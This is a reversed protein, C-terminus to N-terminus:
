RSLERRVNHLREVFANRMADRSFQAASRLDDRAEGLLRKIAEDEAGRATERRATSTSVRTLALYLQAATDWQGDVLPPGEQTLALLQHRLQPENYSASSVAILWEELQDAAITAEVAAANPDAKLSAMTRKLNDLRADFSAPKHAVVPLLAFHWTGWDPQGVGNGKAVAGAHPVLERHCSYCSYEAFEPWVAGPRDEAAAQARAALLELQAQAAAVQGITWVRAEFDPRSRRDNEGKENWHLPMRDLHSAFEFALRPHGAAILDHNVDADAGGVHCNTCLGARAVLDKINTLGYDREKEQPTLLNWEATTHAVIWRQAPGHCTECGIGETVFAPMCGAAEQLPQEMAAPAHCVLCEQAQHAPSALGLRQAIQQGRPALLAAYAQHHKDHEGWIRHENGWILPHTPPSGTNGHCARASCSSAGLWALSEGRVAVTAACLSLWVIGATIGVKRTRM